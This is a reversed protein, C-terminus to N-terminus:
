APGPLPLNSEVSVSGPVSAQLIPMIRRCFESLDLLECKEFSQGLYTLMLGSMEAAKNSAEMATTIKEHPRAGEPLEMMALDLNGIVVGLQNNFYHAIAGAMNGLSEAKQLQRNQAELIEKETEARKRETVDVSTGCVAYIKGNGDMLPFKNTLFTRLGDEKNATEEFSILSQRAIVELDNTRHQDAIEKPLFDHSTKGLLQEPAQQNFFEALSQSALIFKGDLNKAYILYQSHDIVIQLLQLNSLAQEEALKRATIDQIQSIFYRPKNQEDHILSVSM